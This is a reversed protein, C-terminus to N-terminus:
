QKCIKCKEVHERSYNMLYNNNIPINDNVDCHLKLWKDNQPSLARKFQLSYCFYKKNIWENTLESCNEDNLSFNFHIIIFSTHLHLAPSLVPLRNTNKPNKLLSPRHFPGDIHFQCSSTSYLSPPWPDLPKFDYNSGIWLKHAIKGSDSCLKRYAGLAPAPVLIEWLWYKTRFWLQLCLGFKSPFGDGFGRFASSPM